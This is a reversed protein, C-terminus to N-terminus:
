ISGEAQGVIAGAELGAELKPVALECARLEVIVDRPVAQGRGLIEDVVRRPEVIAQRLAELERAREAGGPPTAAAILLCTKARTVTDVLRDIVAPPPRNQPDSCAPM